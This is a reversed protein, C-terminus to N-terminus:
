LNILKKISNNINKIMDLATFRTGINKKCYEGIFGNLFASSCASKFLNNDTALFAACLGALVDGTGGISMEPCGTRNIKIAKGNSIYDYPGKVLLTFDYKKALKLVAESRKDIQDYSPLEVNTMIKLEGEHPTLIVNQSRLMELHNKVLKLSDADLVYSKNEKNLKELLKILLEETEKQKGLGPGIVVANSWEILESIEVFSKMNLWKGPSTRVIMNPSFNRIVDGIIEPVYTIVLDIGFNIGALSTYAPAGSYNKSGGIILVRGFQGKHNDVNRTKLTPILDGKGVFMSAEFPIGISRVVIEKIYDSKIDLGKKNRHLAVVLDAKVAKHIVEGTNPNMGSPLDISVIKIGSEERIKNIFDIATSVPERIKGSIGTGLLADVILSLNNADERLLRINEIETSDLLIITKVMYDIKNRLIDWNLRSAQTRIKEPAGVLIVLSRINFSSLHRAVVFGDGGNNGTGCFIAVKSKDSLDYRKVIEDAISYGACEMLHNLPIGLWQANNDVIVVDEASIKESNFREM